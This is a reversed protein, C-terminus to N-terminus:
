FMEFYTSFLRKSEIKYSYEAGAFRSELLYIIIKELFFTKLCQVSGTIKPFKHMKLVM